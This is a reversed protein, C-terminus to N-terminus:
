SGYRSAMPAASLALDNRIVASCGMPTAVEQPRGAGTVRILLQLMTLFEVNQEIASRVARRVAEVGRRHGEFRPLGRRRWRGNGDMIIAVHTPKEPRERSRSPGSYHM